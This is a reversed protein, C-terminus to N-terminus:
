GCSRVLQAMGAAAPRVSQGCRCADCALGERKLRRASRRHHTRRSQRPLIVSHSSPRPSQARQRNPAPRRGSDFPRPPHVPLGPRAPSRQGDAAALLNGRNAPWRRHSGGATTRRTGPATSACATPSTPRPVISAPAPPKSRAYHVDVDEVIVELGGHSQTSGRPSAMQHGETVAHLWIAADGMRVEGHVVTGDETRHLGGSTFGFTGVLFDHAAEIDEYVLVPIVEARTTTAQETTMRDGYRDPSGTTRSFGSRSGELRNMGIPVRRAAPWPPSTGPSTLSTTTGANSAWTPWPAVM